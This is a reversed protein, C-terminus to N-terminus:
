NGKAAGGNSAGNGNEAVPNGQAQEVGDGGINTATPRGVVIPLLPAEDVGDIDLLKSLADDLFGGLLCSGLGFSSALLALNHGVEGAEILVLRYGRDQYKMTCRAFVATVVIVMGIKEVDEMDALWVLHRFEDWRDERRVIDLTHQDGNYHYVWGRELGEVNVPVVYMELPYLAGGSAVPRYNRKPGIRGYTNLLLRSLEQQTVAEGSYSRVSRRAAIIKELENPEGPPELEKQDMLSYVKFPNAMLLKVMASKGLQSVSQTYARASLPSLKTNEHFIESLTSKLQLAGHVGAGAIKKLVTKEVKLM